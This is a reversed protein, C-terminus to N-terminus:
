VAFEQLNGEQPFSVEIWLHFSDRLQTVIEVHWSLNKASLM